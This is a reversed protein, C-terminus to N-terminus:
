RRAEPPHKLWLSVSSPQITADITDTLHTCLRDLNVENRLREGFILLARETDYRNRYFRKDIGRQIRKRLPSSLAAIGLTSLVIATPSRNGGLTAFLTQLLVVSSFYLLALLATLAGYVLTRRIIIDIDFLRYRLISFTITIPIAGVMGLFVYPGIMQFLAQALEPDPQFAMAERLPVYAVYGLFVITAGFFVYKSQQRELPSSVNWYRYIQSLVGIAWWLMLLWFGGVSITYPDRFSLVSDPNILWLTVWVVWALMFIRMWRPAYYGGPFLYLFLFALGLGIGKMVIGVWELTPHAIMWANLTPTIHLAFSSLGAATILAQWDDQRMFYVLAANLLYLAMVVIEFVLAVSPFLAAMWHLAGATLVTHQELIQRALDSLAKLYLSRAPLAILFMALSAAMIGGTLTRLIVLRTGSNHSNPVFLPTLM